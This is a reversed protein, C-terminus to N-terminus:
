QVFSRAKMQSDSLDNSVARTDFIAAVWHRQARVHLIQLLVLPFELREPRVHIPEVTKVAGEAFLKSLATM